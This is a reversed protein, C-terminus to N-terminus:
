DRNRDNKMRRERQLRCIHEAIEYQPDDNREIRAILIYKCKPCIFGQEPTVFEECDSCLFNYYETWDNM